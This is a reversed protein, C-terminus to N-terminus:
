TAVEAEKGQYGLAALITPTDLLALLDDFKRAIESPNPLYLAGALKSGKALVVLTETAPLGNEFAHIVYRSALYEMDDLSLSTTLSSDRLARQLIPLGNRQVHATLAATAEAETITRDLEASVFGMFS